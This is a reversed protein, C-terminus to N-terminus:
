LDLEVVQAVAGVLQASHTAIGVAIAEAEAATSPGAIAFQDRSCVWQWTHPTVLQKVWTVVGSAGRVVIMQM